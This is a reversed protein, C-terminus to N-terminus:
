PATAPGAAYFGHQRGTEIGENELVAVGDLAMSLGSPPDTVDAVTIKHFFLPALFRQQVLEM